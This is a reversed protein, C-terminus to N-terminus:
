LPCFYPNIQPPSIKTQFHCVIVYDWFEDHGFYAGTTGPEVIVIEDFRMFADEDKVLIPTKLMAIYEIEGAPFNQGEEYPHPSHLGKSTFGAEPQMITLGNEYFLDKDGPEDFTITLDQTPVNIDLIAVKFFGNEPLVTENGASAVDKAIVQYYLTDRDNYSSVDISTQYSYLGEMESYEILDCLVDTTSGENINYRVTVSELGQNDDALINFNLNEEFNFISALPVHEVNPAINDAGIAFFLTSDISSVPLTGQVPYYYTRNLSTTAEFYYKVTDAVLVPISASYLTDNSTSMQIVNDTVFDDISYHLKVSGAVISSDSFLDTEVLVPTGMSEIDKVKQHKFLVSIWGMEAFMGLTIDGPHHTVEGYGASYTMMANSTGNYIEGLHSYSSGGNWSSPAYLQTHADPAAADSLESHFFVNGSTTYQTKLEPSPNSYILTDILLEDSGNYVFRDYIMPFKTGSGWSGNSGDVNASGLFGLGHGIEHMVTSIFDYKNAPCNGDLGLYWDFSSSFRARIDFNEPELDYGALKNAIAIPYWTLKQPANKFDRRFSNAGASGLVGPDLPQWTADIKITVPSHILYSWNEVAKAFAVKADDTFNHYTVEFKATPEEGAKKRDKAAIKFQEIKGSSYTIVEPLDKDSPYSVGNQSFGSTTYLLIAIFSPIQIFRKM